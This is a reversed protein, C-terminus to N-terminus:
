FKFEKKRIRIGGGGGPYIDDECVCSGRGGGGGWNNDYVRANVRWVVYSFPPIPKSSLPPSSSSYSKFMVFPLLALLSPIRGVWGTSKPLMLVGVKNPLM